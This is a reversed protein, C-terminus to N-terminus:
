GGFGNIQDIARPDNTQGGLGAHPASVAAVPSPNALRAYYELKDLRALLQRVEPMTLKFIFTEPQYTLHARMSEITENTTM